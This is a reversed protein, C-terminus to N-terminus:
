RVCELYRCAVSSAITRRFRSMRCWEACGAAAALGLRRWSSGTAVGSEAVHAAAFRGASGCPGQRQRGQRRGEKGSARAPGGAHGTAGPRPTHTCRLSVTYPRLFRQARAQPHLLRPLHHPLPCTHGAYFPALRGPSPSVSDLPHLSCICSLCRLVPLWSAQSGRLNVVVSHLSLGLLGLACRLPVQWAFTACYPLM